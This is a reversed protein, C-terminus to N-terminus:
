ENCTGPDVRPWILPPQWDFSGPGALILEFSLRETNEPIHLVLSSPSKSGEKERYVALRDPRQGSTAGMVKFWWGGAGELQSKMRLRLLSEPALNLPESDLDTPKSILRVVENEDLTITFGKDTPRIQPGAPDITWKGDQLGAVIDLAPAELSKRRPEAGRPIEYIFGAQSREPAPPSAVFCWTEPVDVVYEELDTAGKRALWIVLRPNVVWFGGRLDSKAPVASSMTGGSGHELVSVHRVFLPPVLKLVGQETAKWYFPYTELAGSIPSQAGIFSLIRATRSDTYLPATPKILQPYQRAWAVLNREIRLKDAINRSSAWDSALNLYAYLGFLLAVAFGALPSAWRPLSRLRPWVHSIALPVLICAATVLPLYRRPQYSFTSALEPIRALLAVAFVLIVLRIAGGLRSISLYVAAIIGAGLLLMTAPQRSLMLGLFRTARGLPNLRADTLLGTRVAEEYFARTRATSAAAAKWRHLLDGHILYFFVSEAAVGLAFGGLGLLQRLTAERFVLNTVFWAGLAAIFIAGAEKCSISYAAALGALIYLASAAGRGDAERQFAIIALWIALFGFANMATDPLLISAYAVDLGNLAALVGAAHVALIPAGLRRTVDWALAVTALSCLLPFLGATHASEGFLFFIGAVPLSLGYRYTAVLNFTQELPGWNGHAFEAARYWASLDDSGGAGVFFFVRIALALIVIAGLPLIFAYAPSPLRLLRM